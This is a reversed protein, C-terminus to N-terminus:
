DVDEISVQVISQPTSDYKQGEKILLEIHNDKINELPIQNAYAFKSLHYMKNREYIIQEQIKPHFTSLPLVEKAYLPPQGAPPFIHTSSAWCHIHNENDLASIKLNEWHFEDIIDKKTKIAIKHEILINEYKNSESPHTTIIKNNSDQIHKGLPINKHDVGIKNQFQFSSKYFDLGVDPNMQRSPFNYTGTQMRIAAITRVVVGKEALSFFSHALATEHIEAITKPRDSVFINKHRIFLDDSLPIANKIIKNQNDIISISINQDYFALTQYVHAQGSTYTKQLYLPNYVIPHLVMNKAAQATSSTHVWRIGSSLFEAKFRTFWPRTVYCYTRTISFPKSIVDTKFGRVRNQLKQQRDIFVKIHYKCCKEYENVYSLPINKSEVGYWLM